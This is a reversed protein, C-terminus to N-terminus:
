KIRKSTLYPYLIILFLIPNLVHPQGLSMNLVILLKAIADHLGLSYKFSVRALFGYLISFPLLGVALLYILLGSESNINELADDYGM